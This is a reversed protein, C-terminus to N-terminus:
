RGLARRRQTALSRAFQRDGRAILGALVGFLFGAVHAMWAVGSDPAIFFQSVFWVALLLAAPLRPWLPLLGLLVITRVRAWPYWVLYAGMVGAIAGSAGILPVTSDVQVVVYSATAVVGAILYFLAYVARGMQDEVNNGFIWLFLINGGLHLWSGHLFMSVVVALWVNKDPFVASGAASHDCANANGDIQTAGIERATLPRGQTLECPIAARQYSFEIDEITEAQTPMDLSRSADPQVLVFVAICILIVIVTLVPPRQTPNHDRLPIM